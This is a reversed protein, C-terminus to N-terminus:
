TPLTGHPVVCGKSPGTTGSTYIIAATDATKAKFIEDVPESKLLDKSNRIHMGPFNSCDPTEVTQQGSNYLLHKINPVNDAIDSFRPILDDEIFLIKAGCDVLIHQLFTGVLATNGPVWIAGAAMTAFWAEVLVPGNDLLAAVRDGPQVGLTKLATTLRRVRDHFESWTFSLNTHEYTLFKDACEAPRSNFINLLTEDTPSSLSFIASKTMNVGVGVEYNHAQQM